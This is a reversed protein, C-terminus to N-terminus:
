LKKMFKVVFFGSTRSSIPDFRVCHEEIIAQLENNVYQKKIPSPQICFDPIKETQADLFESLFWAVNEENQSITLSCTSYIMTGGKKLMSWGQKMLNRQLETIKNLRNVDMFNKEFSDWGWKEYKLVHLISGDHTCEADVLVKDYLVGSNLQRDFRLMKPAWFPKVIDTKQRKHGTDATIVRNGLRSPPPISFKTGDAEFLRVREGVKYKKLLSRCTALRHGAIDVGTVTGVGDKGFLNSIMCLKAGPACCLDLVQDDKNISLAEVAIASSLDIGFIIHEKYALTDSLRVNALQVSYFDELGEVKHVQDTNLQEKLDKLTPRKDKPIHTNIRFYRPLNTVTYIAPDISNDDLFKRFSDPLQALDFDSYEKTSEEIEQDIIAVDTM